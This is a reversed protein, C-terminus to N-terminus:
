AVSHRRRPGHGTAVAAGLAVIGLAVIATAGLGADGWDFSDSASVTTSPASTEVPTAGTLANVTTPSSPTQSPAQGQDAQTAGPLYDEVPAASATPVAIAVVAVTLLLAARISQISRKM